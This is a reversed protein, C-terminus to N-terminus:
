SKAQPMPKPAIFRVRIIQRGEPNAPVPADDFVVLCAGNGGGSDGRAELAEVRRRITTM